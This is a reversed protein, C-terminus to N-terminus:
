WRSQAASCSEQLPLSRVSEDKAETTTTRTRESEGWRKPVSARWPVETHWVLYHRCVSDTYAVVSSTRRSVTGAGEAIKLEPPDLLFLTPQLLVDQVPLLKLSESEAEDDNIRPGQAKKPTDENAKRERKVQDACERAVTGGHAIRSVVEEPITNKATPDYIKRWKEHGRNSRLGFLQLCVADAYAGLLSKTVWECRRDMNSPDEALESLMESREEESQNELLEDAHAKSIKTQAMITDPHRNHYVSQLLQDITDDNHLRYAIVRFTQGIRHLRDIGQMAVTASVVDVFVMVHAGKQLNMSVACSRSSGVMIMTSPDNNFAKVAALRQANTIGSRISVFKIELVSLFLTLPEHAWILMKEEQNIMHHLMLKTLHQLKASCSIIYAAM